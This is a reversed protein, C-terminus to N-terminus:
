NCEFRVYFVDDSNVDGDSNVGGWEGRCRTNTGVQSNGDCTNNARVTIHKSPGNSCNNCSDRWGLSVRCHDRVWTRIHDDLWTEDIALTTDGRQLGDGFADGALDSLELSGDPLRVAQEVQLDGRVLADGEFTAQGGVVLHRAVSMDTASTTWMAYPTAHIRQRNALPVDDEPDEPDGLLTMGLYLDDAAQIVDTIAVEQGEPGTGVPGITTTFRGAYVELPMAQRYVPAESAQGDYLAFEMLIADQGTAHLPRGDLELTGQYPLTRPVQDTAPDGDAMAGAAIACIAGLAIGGLLVSLRNPTKM